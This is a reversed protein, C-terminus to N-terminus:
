DLVFLGAFDSEADSEQRRIVGKEILAFVVRGVDESRQLGLERLVALTDDGRCRLLYECYESATMSGANDGRERQRKKRADSLVGLVFLVTGTPCGMEQAVEYIPQLNAGPGIRVFPFAGVFRLPGASDLRSPNLRYDFDFLLAIGQAEHIGLRTTAELAQDLFSASFTADRLLERLPRPSVQEFNVELTEPPFHGLGFDRAFAEPPLYVGVEDPIGFYAEAEEVSAFTGAWFSVFGIRKFEVQDGSMIAGSRSVPYIPDPQGLM